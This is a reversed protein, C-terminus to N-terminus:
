DEVTVGNANICIIKQVEKKVASFEGYLPNLPEDRRWIACQLDAIRGSAMSQAHLASDYEANRKDYEFKATRRGIEFTVSMLALTLLSMGVVIRTVRYNHEDAHIMVEYKSM